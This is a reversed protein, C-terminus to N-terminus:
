KERVIPGWDGCDAALWLHGIEDIQVPRLFDDINIPAPEPPAVFELTGCKTCQWAPEYVPSSDYPSRTANPTFLRETNGFAPCASPAQLVDPPQVARETM